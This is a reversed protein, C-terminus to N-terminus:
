LFFNFFPFLIAYQSFVEGVHNNQQNLTLQTLSNSIGGQDSYNLALFQSASPFLLAQTVDLCKNILMNERCSIMTSSVSQSLLVSVSISFSLSLTLFLSLALSPSICVSLSPPTLDRELWARCSHKPLSAARARTQDPRTPHSDIGRWPCLKSSPHPARGLCEPWGTRDRTSWHQRIVPTQEGM